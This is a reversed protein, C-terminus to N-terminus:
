QEGYRVRTRTYWKSEMLEELLSGGGHALQLHIVLVVEVLFRELVLMSGPVSISCVVRVVLRGDLIVIAEGAIWWKRHFGHITSAHMWWVM